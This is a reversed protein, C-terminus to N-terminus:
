GHGRVFLGRMDSITPLEDPNKFVRIDDVKVSVPRDDRYKVQGYAAVRRGFAKMADHLMEERRFTCSVARDTLDDYVVFRYGGRESITSLTGEVSGQAEYTHGLLKNVTAASQVTVPLVEADVHIEVADLGRQKGNEALMALGKAFELSKESYISPIDVNGDELSRIGNAVARAVAAVDAQTSQDTPYGTAHLLNSGQQVSVTWRIGKKSGTQEVALTRILGFFDRVGNLFDTPTVLGDLNLTIKNPEKSLTGHKNTTGPVHLRKGGIRLLALDTRATDDTHRANYRFDFEPLYRHLHESSVHHYADQLGRQPYTKNTEDDAGQQHPDPWM